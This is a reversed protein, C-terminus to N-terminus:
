PSTFKIADISMKLKNTMNSVKTNVIGRKSLLVKIDLKFILAFSVFIINTDPINRRISNELYKKKFHHEM